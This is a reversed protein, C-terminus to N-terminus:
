VSRLLHPDYTRIYFLIVDTREAAGGFALGPHSLSKVAQDFQAQKITSWDVAYHIQQIFSGLTAISTFSSFIM